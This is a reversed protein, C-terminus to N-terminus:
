YMHILVILQLIKLRCASGATLHLRIRQSYCHWSSAKALILILKAIHKLSPKIQQSLEVLATRECTANFKKNIKMLCSSGYEDAHAPQMQAPQNEPKKM